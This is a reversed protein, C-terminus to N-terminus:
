VYLKFYNTCPKLPMVLYPFKTDKTFKDCVKLSSLSAAVKISNPRTSIVLKFQDLSTTLTDQNSASKLNISGSKMTLDFIKDV